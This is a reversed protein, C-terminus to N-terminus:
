CLSNTVCNFFALDEPAKLGESFDNLTDSVAEATVDFTPARAGHTRFDDDLKPIEDATACLTAPAQIVFVTSTSSHIKAPLEKAAQDWYHWRSAYLAARHPPTDAPTSAEDLHM